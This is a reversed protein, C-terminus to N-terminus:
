ARQRTLFALMQAPTDFNDASIEETPISVGYELELVDILSILSLSDVLGSSLLPTDSDLPDSMALTARVIESLREVEAAQSDDGAQHPGSPAGVALDGAGERPQGNAGEAIADEMRATVRAPPAFARGGPPVDTVVVANPGIVADDGISVGGIIVAGVGIDVRNGIKPSDGGRGLSLGITVNQRIAVDDGIEAMRIVVIGSQHGIHFRRGIKTGPPLEIGYLNRTIFYLPGYLVRVPYRILKRRQLHWAGLRYVALAHFGARTWSRGHNVWDERILQLLKTEGHARASAVRGLNAAASQRSPQRGARGEIDNEKM